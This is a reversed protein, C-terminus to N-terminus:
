IHMNDVYTETEDKRPKAKGIGFPDVGNGSNEIV